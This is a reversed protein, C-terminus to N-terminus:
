LVAYKFVEWFEDIFVAGPYSPYMAIIAFATPSTLLPHM